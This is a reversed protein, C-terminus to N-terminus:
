YISYEEDDTFMGIQARSGTGVGSIIPLTSPSLSGDLGNDTLFKMAAITNQVLEGGYVEVEGERERAFMLAMNRLVIPTLFRVTADVNPEEGADVDVDKYLYFAIADDGLIYPETNDGIRLRIQQIVQIENPM